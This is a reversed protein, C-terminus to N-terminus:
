KKINEANSIAEQVSAKFINYSWTAGSVADVKDIDQHKLLEQPYLKVGKWDNRCQMMYYTNGTFYKEYTSDFDVHQLSDRINFNVKTIKGNEVTIQAHGYFPEEIYYSRSTGKYVGDKYIKNITFALIICTILIFVIKKAM